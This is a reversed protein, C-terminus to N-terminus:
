RAQKKRKKDGGDRDDDGSSVIADPKPTAVKVETPVPKSSITETETIVGERQEQSDHRTCPTINTKNCAVFSFALMLVVLLSSITRM